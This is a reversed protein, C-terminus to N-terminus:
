HAIKLLDWSSPCDAAACTPLDLGCTCHMVYSCTFYRHVIYVYCHLRNHLVLATCHMSSNWFTVFIDTYFHFYHWFTVFINLLNKTNGWQLTYNWNATCYLPLCLALQHLMTSCQLVNYCLLASFYLAACLALQYIGATKRARRKNVIKCVLFRTLMLMM